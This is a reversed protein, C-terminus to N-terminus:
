GALYAVATLFALLVSLGILLGNRVSELTPPALELHEPDFPM